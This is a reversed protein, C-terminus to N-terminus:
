NTVSTPPNFGEQSIEKPMELPTEIAPNKFPPVDPILDDTTNLKAVTEETPKETPVKTKRTKLKSLRDRRAAVKDETEDIIKTTELPNAKGFKDDTVELIIGEDAMLDDETFEDEEITFKDKIKKDVRVYSVGKAADSLTKIVKTNKSVYKQYQEPTFTFVVFAILAAFIVVVSFFPYFIPVLIGQGLFYGWAGCIFTDKNAIAILTSFWILFFASVKFMRPLQILTVNNLFRWGLVFSVVVLIYAALGFGKFVFMHALIAGTLGLWNQVEKGAEALNNTWFAEVLSQDAKGTGGLFYSTFAGFMAMALLLFFMGLTFRVRKNKLLLRIIQIFENQSVRKGSDNNKKYTNERITKAM